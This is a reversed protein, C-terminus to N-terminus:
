RDSIVKGYVNCLYTNHISVISDGVNEFPFVGNKKNLPFMTKMADAPKVGMRELGKYLADLMSMYMDNTNYTGSQRTAVVCGILSNHTPSPYVIIETRARAYGTLHCLKQLALVLRINREPLTEDFDLVFGKFPAAPVDEMLAKALCSLRSGVPTSIETYM